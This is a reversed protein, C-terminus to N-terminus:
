CKSGHRGRLYDKGGARVSKRRDLRGTQSSIAYLRSDIPITDLPDLKRKRTLQPLKIRLNALKSVGTAMEAGRNM